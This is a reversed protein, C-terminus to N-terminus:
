AVFMNMNPSSSLEQPNEFVDEINRRIDKFDNGRCLKSYISHSYKFGASFYLAFKKFHKISRSPEYYKELLGAIEELTNRYTGTVPAFGETLEAFIWPKAVAARGISVGDCGTELIMKRCDDYSFVNGNGFVPISVAQKVFGIYEWKPPRLRRDPAVRPHFTLADAGADEFRKAMEQAFAPDDTWGTRYKIFLPISVAKRVASVISVALSPNKLLAAGCNMRCIASVSCGFNIDVGFFGEKEIRKAAEAMREPVSGFIQCVLYPLEEDRWRFVPSVHRNEHPIAKASSMETFLLGHGGFSSVLERFAIHGLGAMPALALRNTIQRSGIPLPKKLFTPLEITMNLM